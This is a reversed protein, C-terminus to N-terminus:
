KYISRLTCWEFNGMKVAFKVWALKSEPIAEKLIRLSCSRTRGPSAAGGVVCEAEGSDQMKFQAWQAQVHVFPYGHMSGEAKRKRGLRNWEALFNKGVSMLLGREWGLQPRCVVKRHLNQWWMVIGAKAKHQDHVLAPLRITFHRVKAHTWIFTTRCFWWRRLPVTKRDINHATYNWPSGRGKRQSLETGDM